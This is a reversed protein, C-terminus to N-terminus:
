IYPNQLKVLYSLNSHGAVLVLFKNVHIEDYRSRQLSYTFMRHGEYIYSSLIFIKATLSAMEYTM